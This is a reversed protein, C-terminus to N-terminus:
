KKKEKLIDFYFFTYVFLSFTFSFIAAFMDIIFTYMGLPETLVFILLSVIGNYVMLLLFVMIFLIWANFKNNKTIEYSRKIAGVISQKELVVVPLLVMSLPVTYALLILLGIISVIVFYPTIIIPVFLLISLAFIILGLVINTAILNLFRVGSLEFAKTLDIKKGYVYQRALEPYCAQVFSSTFVLIVCVLFVLPMYLRVADFLIPMSSEIMTEDMVTADIGLAELNRVFQIVIAFFLLVPIWNIFQPLVTRPSDKIMRLSSGIIREINM